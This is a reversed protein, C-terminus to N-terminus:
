CALLAGRSELSLPTKHGCRTAPLKPRHASHCRAPEPELESMRAPLGSPDAAPIPGRSWVPPREFARPNTFRIQLSRGASVLVGRGAARADDESCHAKGEQELSLCQAWRSRSFRSSVSSFGPDRPPATCPQCAPPLGYAKQTRLGLQPGGRPRPQNTRSLHVTPVGKAARARRGRDLGEETDAALACNHGPLPCRGSPCHPDSEQPRHKWKKSWLTTVM